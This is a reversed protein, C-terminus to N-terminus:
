TKLVCGALRLGYFLSNIPEGPSQQHSSPPTQQRQARQADCRLVPGQEPLDDAGRGAEAAFLSHRGTHVPLQRQVCM